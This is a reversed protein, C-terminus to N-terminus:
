NISAQTTKYSCSNLYVCLQLSLLLSNCHNYLSNNEVGDVNSNIDVNVCVHFYDSPLLDSNNLKTAMHM